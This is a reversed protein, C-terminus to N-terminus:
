KREFIVVTDTEYVKEFRSSLELYAIVPMQIPAGAKVKRVYIHSYNEGTETQWTDLCMVDQGACTQLARARDLREGFRGDNVWEYGYVTAVSRREALSPFWESSPDLLPNEQTILIFRSDVPTTRSWEFAKLDQSNLTLSTLSQTGLYFNSMVAYVFIFGVFVKVIPGDLLQQTWLGTEREQDSGPASSFVRLGPLIVKDVGFGFAMALPIMMYLPASRPEITHILFLWLPILYRKHALLAFVGLLGFVGFLSLFPEDTFKFIFFMLFRTLASVNDQSAATLPATLSAVGHRSIATVWWPATTVIVGGAVIISYLFGKRSRDKWVYFFVSTLVTHFIAEPHTYVVLSSFLIAPLIDRSSKSSFLRYTHRLALLAFLFGLSRTVGGGMIIWDFARPLFAFAAVALIQAIKSELIEKALLYFAPITLISTITPLIRMLDLLPINTIDTLLAYLYFAFPPYAFPINAQNYTTTLPLLYHNSHLDRIMTYFLGGDNIPMEASAPASLRVMLGILTIFLVLASMTKDTQHM